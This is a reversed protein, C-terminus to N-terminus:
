YIEYNHGKTDTDFPSDMPLINDNYKVSTIFGDDDLMTVKFSLLKPDFTDAEIDAVVFTGKETSWAVLVSDEYDEEPHIHDTKLQSEPIVDSVWVENDDEDKVVIYCMDYLPAFFAQQQSELETWHGLFLPDTPDTVPNPNELEVDSETPDTFLHEEMGGDDHRSWFEAQDETLTAVVLECGRGSITITYIM